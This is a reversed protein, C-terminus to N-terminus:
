LCCRCARGPLPGCATLCAPCPPPPARRLVRSPLQKFSAPLSFHLSPFRFYTEPLFLLYFLTNTPQSLTPECAAQFVRNSETPKPHMRCYILSPLENKTWGREMEGLFDLVGQLWKMTVMRTWRGQARHPRYKSTTAFLSARIVRVYRVSSAVARGLRHSPARVGRPTAIGHGWGVVGGGVCRTSTSASRMRPGRQATPRQRPRSNRLHRGKM